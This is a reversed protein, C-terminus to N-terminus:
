TGLLQWRSPRDQCEATAAAAVSHGLRRLKSLTSVCDFTKQAGAFAGSFWIQETTLPVTLPTIAIHRSQTLGDHPVADFPKKQAVTNPKLM